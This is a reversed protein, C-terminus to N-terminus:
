LQFHARWAAANTGCDKGDALDVLASRAAEAVLKDADALLRILTLAARKDGIKGLTWCISTRLNANETRGLMDLCPQVAEPSKLDAALSLAAYRVSEAEDKLAAIVGPVAGLGKEKVQARLAKARNAPKSLDSTDSQPASPKEASPSGGPPATAKDSLPALRVNAYRYYVELCLVSCATSYLRGAVPGIWSDAPEWSGIHRKVELEQNKLLTTKLATNWNDWDPGMGDTALFLGLTCSYWGYFTDFNPEASGASPVHLNEWKPPHEALLRRAATNRAAFKDADLISRALLGVGTMGVGKRYPYPYEDAYYTEGNDLSMRDYLDVLSNWCTANVSIGVARASKLAMVAWGTISLDSRQSSRTSTVQATYTWGGKANQTRELFRVAREASRRYNDDGTLGYAECMMLTAVSHTYMQQSSMGHSYCGSTSQQRLWYYLAKEVTDAFEGEKPTHGAALFPLVCLASIPPRMENGWAENIGSDFRSGQGGTPDWSGDNSQVSALWALGLNVANESGSDGGHERVAAKRSEGKRNKFLGAGSLGENTSRRPQGAGLGAGSDRPLKPLDRMPAPSPRAVEPEPAFIKNEQPDEFEEAGPAKDEIIRDPSITTEEDQARDLKENKDIDTIPAPPAMSTSLSPALTKSKLPEFLDLPKILLLLALLALHVGCAILLSHLTWVSFTHLMAIARRAIPKRFARRPKLSIPVASRTSGAVEAIAGDKVVFTAPSICTPCLRASYSLASGCLPCAISNLVTSPM